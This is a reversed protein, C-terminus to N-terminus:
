ASSSDARRMLAWPKLVTCSSRANLSMSKEVGSAIVRSFHWRTRSVKRACLRGILQMEAYVLM